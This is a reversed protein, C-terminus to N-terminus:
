VSFVTIIIIVTRRIRNRKDRMNRGGRVTKVTIKQTNHKKLIM